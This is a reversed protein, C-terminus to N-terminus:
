ASSRKLGVVRGSRSALSDSAQAASAERERPTMNPELM